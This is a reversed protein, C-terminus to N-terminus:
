NELIKKLEEIEKYSLYVLNGHFKLKYDWICMDGFVLKVGM